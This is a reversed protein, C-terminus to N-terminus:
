ASARAGDSRAEDEQDAFVATGAGAVPGSSGYEAAEQPRIPDPVQSGPATPDHETAGFGERYGEGFDSTASPTGARTLTADDDPPSKVGREIAFGEVRNQLDKTRGGATRQLHNRLATVRQGLQARRGAGKVPDLVWMLAAGLLSGIALGGFLLGSRAQARGREYAVDYRTKDTDPLERQVRSVVDEAAPLEDKMRSFLSKAM